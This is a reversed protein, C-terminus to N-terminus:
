IQLSLSALPLFFALDGAFPLFPPTGLSHLCSPLVPKQLQGIVPSHFNCHLAPLLDFCIGLKKPWHPRMFGPLGASWVQFPSLLHIVKEPPSFELYHFSIRQPLQSLPASSVPHVALHLEWFISACTSFQVRFM